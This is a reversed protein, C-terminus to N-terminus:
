PKRSEEDFDRAKLDDAFDRADLDESVERTELQEDRRLGVVGKVKIHRGELSEVEDGEELDSAQRRQQKQQQQDQSLASPMVKKHHKKKGLKRFLGGVAGKTLSFLGGRAELERSLLPFDDHERAFLLGTDREVIETLRGDHDAVDHGFTEVSATTSCGGYPRRRSM